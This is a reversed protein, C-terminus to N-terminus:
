SVLGTTEGGCGAFAVIVEHYEVIIFGIGYKGLDHFIAAFCFEHATVGAKVLLETQAAELRGQVDEVIFAGGPELFENGFGVFFELKNRRMAVAGVMGLFGDAGELLVEDCAYAAVVGAEGHVKPFTVDRM